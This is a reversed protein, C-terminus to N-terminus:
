FHTTGAEPPIIRSDPFPDEAAHEAASFFTYGTGPLLCIDQQPARQFYLDQLWDLLARATRGQEKDQELGCVSGTIGDARREMRMELDDAVCRYYKLGNHYEIGAVDYMQGGLRFERDDEWEASTLDTAAILITAEAKESAQQIRHHMIVKAAQKLGYRLPLMCSLLCVLLLLLVALSKKV